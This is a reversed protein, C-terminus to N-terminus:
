LDLVRVMVGAPWMVTIYPLLYILKNFVTIVVPQVQFMSTVYMYVNSLIAVNFVCFPTCLCVALFSVGDGAPLPTSDDAQINTHGRSYRYFWM